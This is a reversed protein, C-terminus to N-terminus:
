LLLCKSLVLALIGNKNINSLDLFNHLTLKNDLLNYSFEFLNKFLKLIWNMRLNTYTCLTYDCNAFHCPLLSKSTSLLALFLTMNLATYICHWKPLFIDENSKYIIKKKRVNSWRSRRCILHIANFLYMYNQLYFTWNLM